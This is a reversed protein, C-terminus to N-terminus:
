PLTLFLRYQLLYYPGIPWSVTYIFMNGYWHDRHVRAKKMSFCVNNVHLERYFAKHTSNLLVASIAVQISVSINSEYRSNKLTPIEHRLRKGSQAMEPDITPDPPYHRCFKRCFVCIKFFCCLEASYPWFLCQKQQYRARSDHHSANGSSSSGTYTSCSSELMALALPLPWKLVPLCVYM